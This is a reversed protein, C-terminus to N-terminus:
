KVKEIGRPTQICRIMTDRIKESNDCKQNVSKSYDVKKVVEVANSESDAEVIYEKYRIENTELKIKYKM